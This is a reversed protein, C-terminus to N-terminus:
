RPGGTTSSIAHDLAGSSRARRLASRILDKPPFPTIRGDPLRYARCTLAFRSGEDGSPDIDTGDIRITPSGPFRLAAAREDSEVAVIAIPGGHGEEVAVERLRALAVETSSCDPEYLFEIRM